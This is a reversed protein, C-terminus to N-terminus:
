PLRPACFPDAYPMFHQCLLLYVSTLLAMLDVVCRLACLRCSFARVWLNGAVVQQVRAVSDIRPARDSSVALLPELAFLLM